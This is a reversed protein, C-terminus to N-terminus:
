LEWRGLTCLSKKSGCASILSSPFPLHTYHAGAWARRGEAASCESCCRVSRLRKHAVFSRCIQNYRVQMGAGRARCACSARSAAACQTIQGQKRRCEARGRGFSCCCRRPPSTSNTHTASRPPLPSTSRAQLTCFDPRPAKPVGKAWMKSVYQRAKGSRNFTWARLKEDVYRRLQCHLFLPLLIVTPLTPLSLPGPGQQASPDSTAKSTRWSLSCAASRTTRTTPCTWGSTGVFPRGSLRQLPHNHSSHFFPM